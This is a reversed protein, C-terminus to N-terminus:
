SLIYRAQLLSSALILHTWLVHLTYRDYMGLVPNLGLGTDVRAIAYLVCYYIVRLEIHQLQCHLDFM